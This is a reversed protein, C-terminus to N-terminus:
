PAAGAPPPPPVDAPPPPALTGEDPPPPARLAAIQERISGYRAHIFDKIYGLSWEFSETPYMKTTDEQVAPRIQAAFADAQQAIADATVAQMVAELRDLYPLRM